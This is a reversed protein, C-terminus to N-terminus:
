HSSRKTVDPNSFMVGQSDYRWISLDRELLNELYVIDAEYQKILWRMESPILEPMKKDWGEYVLKRLGLRKGLKVIAFLNKSILWTVIRANIKALWFYRPMTIPNIKKYGTQPLPHMSIGLFECINNYVSQPNTKIDDLLIFLIQESGFKGLWRPLHKAYEGSTIIRPMQSVADTFSGRVRGKSLHHRYLSVARSIPNRLNVIIKCNPNMQYIRDPVNEVDFYTPSIDGCLQALKRSNFRTTYWQIGKGFYVDFFMPEDVDKPLCLSPHCHLMQNLWSTGTRQPGVGVFHLRFVDIDSQITMKSKSHM